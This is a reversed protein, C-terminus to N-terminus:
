RENRHGSGQSPANGLLRDAPQDAGGSSERLGGRERCVPSVSRCPRLLPPRRRVRYRALVPFRFPDVRSRRDAPPLLAGQDAGRFWRLGRAAQALREHERGGPIGPDQLSRRAGPLPSARDVTGPRQAGRLADPPFCRCGLRCPRRRNPRHRGALGPVAAHVPEPGAEAMRVARSGRAAPDAQRGIGASMPPVLYEGTVGDIGNLFFQDESM